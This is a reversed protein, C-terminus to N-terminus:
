QPIVKTITVLPGDKSYAVGYWYSEEDQPKDNILEYKATTAKALSTFYKSHVMNFPFEDANVGYNLRYIVM